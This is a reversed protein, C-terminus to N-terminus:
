LIDSIYLMGDKDLLKGVDKAMKARNNSHLLSDCCVIVDFLDGDKFAGEDFLYDFSIKAVKYKDGFEKSQEENYKNEVESINTAWMVELLDKEILGKAITRAM